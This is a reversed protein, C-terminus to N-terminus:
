RARINPGGDHSILGRHYCGRSMWAKGTYRALAKEANWTHPVIVTRIM